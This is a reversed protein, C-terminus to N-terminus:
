GSRLKYFVKNGFRVDIYEVEDRREGIEEELVIKLVRFVEDFDDDRSLYLIFGENTEVRIESPIKSFLEYGVVAAGIEQRIKEELFRLDEMLPPEIVYTGIAVKRDDIKVKRILSGTTNPAEEYAFGTKDIYVCRTNGAIEEEDTNSYQDQNTNSAIVVKSCFIGWLEREVILITLTDPYKKEVSVNAIRPFGETLYNVVLKTDVLLMSSKPFVSAYNGSLLSMIHNRVIDGTLINIGQINIHVAQWQPLRIAYVSVGALVGFLFIFFFFWLSRKSRRKTERHERHTYLIRDM